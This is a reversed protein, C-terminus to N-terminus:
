PMTSVEAEIFEQGHARAVSIRHHGDVVFYSGDRYYLKIPPLRVGKHFANDMRMWRGRLHMRLPRFLRDFDQSRSISGNIKSIPIFQIGSKNNNYAIDRSAPGFDLLKKEKRLLQDFFSHLKGVYLSKQFLGGAHQDHSRAIFTHEHSMMQQNM